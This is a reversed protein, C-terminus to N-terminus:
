KGFGGLGKLLGGAADKLADEAKKKAGEVAETFDIELTYRVDQGRLSFGQGPGGFGGARGRQGFLDSFVDGFGFEDGM